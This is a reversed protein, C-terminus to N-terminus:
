RPKRDVLEVLPVAESPIIVTRTEWQSIANVLRANQETLLTLKQNILPLAVLILLICARYGFQWLFDDKIM